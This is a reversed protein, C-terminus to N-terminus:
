PELGAGRLREVLAENVNMLERVQEELNRVYELKRHRSRRAALTNQRRKAEIESEGMRPKVRGTRMEEEDDDDEVDEEEALKRKKPNPTPASPPATSLAFAPIDKRSTASPGRYNRTQTPADIPLLSSPSLNKRHGTPRSSTSSRLPLTSPATSPTSTSALPVPIISPTDTMSILGDLGDLENAPAVGKLGLASPAVVSADEYNFLSRDDYGFLPMGEFDGEFDADMLTLGTGPTASFPSTPSFSLAPPESASPPTTLVPQDLVGTFNFHLDDNSFLAPNLSNNMSTFASMDHVVPTAPLDSSQQSSNFLHDFSLPESTASREDSASLAHAAAVPPHDCSSALFRADFVDTLWQDILESDDGRCYVGSELLGELTAMSAAGSPASTTSDSMAIDKTMSGFSPDEALMSLYNYQLASYNTGPQLTPLPPLSRPLDHNALLQEQPTRLRSDTPALAYNQYSFPTAFGSPTQNPFGYSTSNVPTNAPYASNVFTRPRVDRSTTYTTHRYLPFIAQASPASLFNASPPSPVQPDVNPHSLPAPASPRIRRYTLPSARVSSSSSASSETPSSLPSSLTSGSPPDLM